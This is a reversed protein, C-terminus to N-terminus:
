PRTTPRGSADGGTDTSNPGKRTADVGADFNISLDLAQGYRVASQNQVLGGVVKSFQGRVASSFGDRNATLVTSGADLELGGSVGCIRVPQQGTARRVM